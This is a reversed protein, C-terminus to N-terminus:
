AVSIASKPKGRSLFLLPVRNQVSGSVFRFFFFFCQFGALWGSEKASDYYLTLRERETVNSALNMEMAWSVFSQISFLTRGSDAIMRVAGVTSM